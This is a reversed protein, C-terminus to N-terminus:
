TGMVEQWRMTWEKRKTAIVESDPFDIANMKEETVIQAEAFEKPWDSIDPRGPSSYYAINFARQVDRDLRFNLFEFALKKNKAGVPVGACNGLGITGEKPITLGIPHGNAQYYASRASWYPAIWVQENEFYPAAQASTTVVTGVYPKQEKLVDWVPNM